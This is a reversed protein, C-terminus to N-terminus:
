GDGPAAALPPRALGHRRIADGLLEFDADTAREGLFVSFGRTGAARLRWVYDGARHARRQQRWGIGLMPHVRSAPYGARVAHDVVYQPGLYGAVSLYAQPLLAFNHDRWPAYDFPLVWPAIAAGYTTVAAPLHPFRARFERVFLASREVRGGYAGAMYPNEADVIWCDLEHRAVLEAVLAADRRPQADAWGWGCVKLGSARFADVWGAALAADNTRARARGHHLWLAVWRFGSARLLAARSPPFADASAVLAGAGQWLERQSSPTVTWRAADSAPAAPAGGAAALAAAGAAAICLIRRV